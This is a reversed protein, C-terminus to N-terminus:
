VPIHVVARLGGLPSDALTIDGGHSQVIDRAISLGLGTNGEDQNRSDDLRYFPQFVEERQDPPIGPGDDDVTIVLREPTRTFTIEITDAFRAANRVLNGLARKFAHRRLPAVMADHSMRIIVQKGMHAVDQKIEELLQRIPMRVIEEGGAGQAFAMYDQLMAQMEDVDARMTEFEPGDGALALELRFRTLITRLDHSVGALMTTRQDVHREIRDRMKLFAIAAQRVEQAGRPEFDEPIPQGKGFKEAAEALRLIPRIQNRLFLVAVLLLVLSTGVMWVLFIHSNSAYTQSRRAVVRFIADDLKIRIEVFRSRGVTDIWFPKGIRQRIENSLTRDLLTFFPKPGVKPLDGPPLFQVTLNLRERAIRVVEERGKKGPFTQAIDILAAIDRTTAISLRRTVQQWHREMFVFTLVSQLLVLPAAIIILTRPFLRKPMRGLIASGLRGFARGFRLLPSPVRWRWFTKSHEATTSM